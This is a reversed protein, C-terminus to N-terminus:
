AAIQAPSNTPKSHSKGIVPLGRLGQAALKSTSFQAVLGLGLTLIEAVTTLSSDLGAVDFNPWFVKAVTFAVFGGLNIFLSWTPAQGDKIVGATKGINIAAAALSAFGLLSAFGILLTQLDM